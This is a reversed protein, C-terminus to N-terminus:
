FAQPSLVEEGSLEWRPGMGGANEETVIVVLAVRGGFNQPGM